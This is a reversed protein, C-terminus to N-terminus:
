RSAIRRPAATPASTRLIVRRETRSWGCGGGDPRPRTGRVSTWGRARVDVPRGRADNRGAALWRLDPGRRRLRLGSPSASSPQAILRELYRPIDATPPTVDYPPAVLDTLHATDAYRIGPLARVDAIPAETAQAGCALRLDAMGDVQQLRELLPAAGPRRDRPDDNGKRALTRGRGDMHPTNVSTSPRPM